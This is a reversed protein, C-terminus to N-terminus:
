RTGTSDLCTRDFGRVYSVFARALPEMAEAVAEQAPVVEAVVDELSRGGPYSADGGLTGWVRLQEGTSEPHFQTGWAEGCRFAQVPAATGEVLHVAGDPLTMEIGHWLIVPFKAPLHSFLPDTRAEPRTVASGVGIQPVERERVRAGAALCLQEGGLCVALAPFAGAASAALLERTGPMWPHDEDDAPGMSGGLVVLGDFEEPGPLRGPVSAATGAGQMQPSHDPESGGAAGAGGQQGVCREPGKPLYPRFVTLQAGASELWEGLRRADTGAEHEIVALRVAAGRRCESVGSGPEASGQASEAGAETSM